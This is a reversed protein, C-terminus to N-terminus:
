KSAEKSATKAATVASKEAKAQAEDTAEGTVIVSDKADEIAGQEQYRKIVDADGLRSSEVETGPAVLNGDVDSIHTVTTFKKTAM